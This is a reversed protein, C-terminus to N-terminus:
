SVDVEGVAVGQGDMVVGGVAPLGTAPDGDEGVSQGVIVARRQQHPQGLLERLPAHPHKAPVHAAATRPEGQGAPGVVGTAGAIQRCDDFAHHGPAALTSGGVRGIGM